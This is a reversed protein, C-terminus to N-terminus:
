RARFYAINIATGREYLGPALSQSIVEGNRPNPNVQFFNPNERQIQERTQGNVSVTFGADTLAKVAQEYNLGVVSPLTVRDGASM